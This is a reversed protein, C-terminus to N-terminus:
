SRNNAVTARTNERVENAMRRKSVRAMPVGSRTDEGDFRSTNEPKANIKSVLRPRFDTWKPASEQM